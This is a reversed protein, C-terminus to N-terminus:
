RRTWNSRCPIGPRERLSADIGHHARDRWAELPYIEVGLERSLAELSEGRLLRLTVERKRAVSWRQGPALPGVAAGGPAEGTARRAGGRGGAGGGASGAAGAEEDDDGQVDTQGCIPTWSFRTREFYSTAGNRGFNRVIDSGEVFFPRKEEFFTEFATLNVVAPDVEVQGFDPNVTADLTLSSTVGWKLDLGLGGTAQASDAFPDDEDVEGLFEGRATAYPLLALHRRGQVDLGTLTGAHSMLGSEKKGFFAWWGEEAKRKIHRVLHLGWTQGTGSSFRLQSLPIRLEATWGEHDVSVASSWVADWSEDSGSDNFLSEDVQTGAATVGFHVGTLGDNRPGFAVHFADAVSEGDDDRRTLHRAIALPERDFMRAGVYIAEDDFLIRIETRESAPQGEDPDKQFFETAAPAKQWEAEDLRGDVIISGTVRAAALTPRPSDAQIVPQAQPQPAWTLLLLGTLASRPPIM